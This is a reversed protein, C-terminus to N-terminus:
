NVASDKSKDKYYESEEKSNIYKTSMAINRSANYDANISFGCAKCIFTDQKERQGDEYHGCRSCIQSTHYPDVYCVKIGQLKAKNEVLERLQYYPWDNLLSGNTSEKMSLLELNIQCAKNDLAFKIIEKSIFHNYTRNYNSQLEKFRNTNSLKKNRGKGGRVSKLQHYLKQRRKKFQTNVKMFDDFSGIAHRIYYVDNLSVYAPIKIGVDVGVVRGPIFENKKSIPIDVTLNLILNKDKFKISSECIKYERNIISHIFHKFELDNKNYNRGLLVKFTIGNVWKIKVDKKDYYFTLDRGRTLLPFTRKYNRIRREGKALGNKIDARFDKKVRNTVTSKTDIGTGFKIDDFIPNSNKLLKVAEDYAEKDKHHKLYPIGLFNVAKNLALCQNYQADHIFKYKNNRLQENEEDITIKLKRVTLM